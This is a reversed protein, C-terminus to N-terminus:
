ADEGRPAREREVLVRRLIKGSTTKPITDVMTVRRIRKHPAVRAAVFSMIEDGTADGKLVVYAVPIEGAEADPSPIVAADAVSPHSCLLAELEAPAVQLGKYKILEKLRDVIYFYGDEDAYAMDGSHLFGDADIMAATADPRNLYGKMVQPGRIWLEGVENPGLETGSEPDVLKCDTNAVPPGISGIKIRAPDEPNIHTAPSTETLGYAQKIRCGLREAAARAVNEGLPAAGSFLMELKSLDYKDVLPHQTLGLVIPPVIYARTVGHNQLLELFQQMDFRPMTVMTAGCYVGYNLILEMAYIHYFPLIAITTDKEGLPEPEVIQCVNAVLNHHTLMVGKPLGTTGSSYPLAVLDERPNIQVEPPPGDTELLASFPTAGEAEGFVFVEKVGSKGAAELAKDLFAPITLLYKARADNLQYALEDATYLPNITTNIGGALSVGHFAVAYEPLNPSYIAFVDSKAFGRAALGAAVRRVMEALQRYTITRGTPGDILAPKDGFQETRGLVFPTLPVEPITVTTYPSHFIM